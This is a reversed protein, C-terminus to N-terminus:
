TIIGEQNISARHNIEELILQKSHMSADQESLIVTANFKCYVNGVKAFKTSIYIIYFGHKKKIDIFNSEKLIKLWREMSRISVGHIEALVEKPIVLANNGKMEWTMWELLAAAKGNTAMLSIFERRSESMHQVFKRKAM